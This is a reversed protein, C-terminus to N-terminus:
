LGFFLKFLHWFVILNIISNGTDDVYRAVLSKKVLRDLLAVGEDEEPTPEIKLAQKLQVYRIFGAQNFSGAQLSLHWGVRTAQTYLLILLSCVIIEFDTQLRSYVALVVSIAILAKVVEWSHLFHKLHRRRNRKRVGSVGGRVMDLLSYDGYTEPQKVEKAIQERIVVQEKNTAGNFHSDLFTKIAEECLRNQLNTLYTDANERTEKAEMRLRYKQILKWGYDDIAHQQRFEAGAEENSFKFKRVASITSLLDAAIRQSDETKPM